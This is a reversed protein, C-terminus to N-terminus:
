DLECVGFTFVRIRNFTGSDAASRWLCLTFYMLLSREIAFDGDGGPLSLGPPLDDANSGFAFGNASLTRGNTGLDSKELSGRM